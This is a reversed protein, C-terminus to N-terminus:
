VGSSNTNNLPQPVNPINTTTNTSNTTNSPQPVNTINTTTNTSSTVNSLQPVNPISTTTNTSNTVNSLQPANPTSTTTYTSNTTNSPQPVNTINTTTNTSNTINSPQPVNTTNTTTNTSNTINSTPVLNTYNAENPGSSGYGLLRYDLDFIERHAAVIWLTAYVVRNYWYPQFSPCEPPKTWSLVGVVTSVNTKVIVPGGSDGICTDHIGEVKACQMSYDTEETPDSKCDADGHKELRVEQATISRPDYGAAAGWGAVWVAQHDEPSTYNYNLVAVDMGSNEALKLLAFDGRTGNYEPFIEVDNLNIMHCEIPAAETKKDCLEQGVTKSGLIVTVRDAHEICSAATLVWNQHILTGGCSYHNGDKGNIKIYALFPYGEVASAARSELKLKKGGLFTQDQVLGGDSRVNLLKLSAIFLLLLDCQKLIIM